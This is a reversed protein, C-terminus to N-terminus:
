LRSMWARLQQEQRELEFANILGRQFAIAVARARNNIMEVESDKTTVQSDDAGLKGYLSRLRNQVGRRSLYRRMAIANDTLGLAIDILVEYEADTIAFGSRGTRAQVPRVQPDIWCQCERFVAHAAKSLVDASNTKLVYGYVTQAPVLNAIARVYVEDNFQSWFLLRADPKHAWLNRALEVGNIGPMQIDTVLFPEASTCAALAQPADPALVVSYDALCEALFHRDRANDDVVILTLKDSM